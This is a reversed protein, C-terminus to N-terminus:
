AVLTDVINGWSEQVYKKRNFNKKFIENKLASKTWLFNLSEMYGHGSVHMAEAM